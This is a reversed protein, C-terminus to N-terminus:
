PLWYGKSTRFDWLINKMKWSMPDYQSEGVFPAFNEYKMPSVHWDLFLVNPGDGHRVSAPRDVNWGMAMYNIRDTMDGALLNLDDPGPTEEAKIRDASDAVHWREDPSEISDYIVKQIMKGSLGYYSCNIVNIGYKIQNSFEFPDKQSPCEFTKVAENNAFDGTQYGHLADKGKLGLYPSLLHMWPRSYWQGGGLSTANAADSTLMIGENDLLYMMFTQGMQRLHTKCVVSKAQERAKSLTPLLIAVLLAIISIVVLLEVLTFGCSLKKMETRSRM